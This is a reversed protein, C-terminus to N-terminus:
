VKQGVEVERVGTSNKANIDENTTAVQGFLEFRFARDTYTLEINRITTFTGYIPRCTSNCWHMSSRM